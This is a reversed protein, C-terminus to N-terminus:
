PLAELPRARAPEPDLASEFAATMKGLDAEIMAHSRARSRMEALLGSRERIQRLVELMAPVNGPEVLWGTEGPRVLEPLGGVESALIPTGVGLAELVVTPRGDLLSPLVLLDVNALLSLPDDVLGLLHLRRYAAPAGAIRAEVQARQPGTGAMVFHIDWDPPCAIVLDLFGLPNKEESWRGAFGVVVGDEPMGLARRTASTRLNPHAMTLDIGSKVLRVRDTREGRQLLWGRVEDNEVITLDILRKYRRNDNTHGVTNFLLDVVKLHPFQVRIRRLMRYTFTSGAILLTSVRRGAITSLIFDAWDEEELFRPLDFVRDTHRTFWDTTNGAEPGPSLTSIINIEWGEGVLHRVVEALLREAGGLVLWPVAILLVPKTHAESAPHPLTPFAARRAKLARSTGIAEDTLVDANGARVLAAQKDMPLVSASRSLSAAHVRYRLLFDDALNVVKAGLAVVRTWFLWDEHVHGDSGGADDRFGGATEWFHRRFAACTLVHNGSLLTALDPRRVISLTGTEAGFLEMGASVVDAGRRELLYAAKELYTPHLMDDADLCVIYKGRAHTIGLNRNAGVRHPQSQVLVQVTGDALAAVREPTSGDTSGGEVVIIEHDKLTQARVSGVAEAVYDGYNFCPIVVSFM